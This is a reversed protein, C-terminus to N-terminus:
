KIGEVKKWGKKGTAGRLGAIKFGWRVSPTGWKRGEATYPSIQVSAHEAEPHKLAMFDNASQMAERKGMGRFFEVPIGNGLNATGLWYIIKGQM